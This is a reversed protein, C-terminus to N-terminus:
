KFGNKRRSQSYKQFYTMQSSPLSLCVAPSSQPKDLTEQGRLPTGKPRSIKCTLSWLGGPREDAQLWPSPECLGPRCHRRLSASLDMHQARPSQRGARTQTSAAAEGHSALTHRLPQLSAARVTRWCCRHAAKWTQKTKHSALFCWTFLKGPEHFKQGHM